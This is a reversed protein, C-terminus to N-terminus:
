RFTVGLASLVRVAEARRKRTRVYLSSKGALRRLAGIVVDIDRQDLLATVEKLPADARVENIIKM